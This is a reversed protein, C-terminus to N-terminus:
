AEGVEWFPQDHPEPKKAEAELRRTFEEITSFQARPNM